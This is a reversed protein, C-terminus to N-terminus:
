AAAQRAVAQECEEVLEDALPDHDAGIQFTQRAAIVLLTLLNPDLSADPRGETYRCICEAIRGLRDREFTGAVGRVDHAMLYIPTSVDHPRERAYREMQQLRQLLDAQARDSLRAAAKTASAAAETTLLSRAEGGIRKQLRKDPPLIEVPPRNSM